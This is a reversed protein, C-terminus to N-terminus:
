FCNTMNGEANFLSLAIETHKAVFRRFTGTLAKRYYMGKSTVM